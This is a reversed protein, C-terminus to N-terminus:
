NVRHRYGIADTYRSRTDDSSRKLIYPYSSNTGTSINWIRYFDWAGSFTSAQKMQATTKATAVTGGSGNDIDDDFYCATATPTLSNLKGVFSGKDTATGELAAACYVRTFTPASTICNAAFGGEEETGDIAGTSTNVYYCDTFVGGNTRYVFGGCRAGGKVTGTAWCRTATGHVTSSFSGGYSGAAVTVNVTSSCDTITAGSGAAGNSGSFGGGQNGGGGSITVSGTVHCNTITVGAALANSMLGGVMGTDTVNVGTLYLNKIVVTQGTAGIAGFLGGNVTNGAAGNGGRPNLQYLNSITHGQGDFTGTFPV